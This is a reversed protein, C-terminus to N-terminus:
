LGVDIDFFDATEEGYASSEQEFEKIFDDFGQGELYTHELKYKILRIKAWPYLMGFTLLTVIVNSLTIWGLKWPKWNSKFSLKGITTSNYVINGIWGDLLGKVFPGFIILLVYVILLMSGFFIITDMKDLAGQTTANSDHLQFIDHMQFLLSYQSLMILITPIFTLVFAKLYAKYFGGTGGKFEFSKDGYSTNNIILEKFKKFTYPLIIGITVIILIAHLIFFKYYKWVSAFHYFSLGRYRTYRMRFCIAQRILFPICLIFTIIFIKAFMYFGLVDGLIVYLIYSGIVIARGILIRVPNAIYEFSTDKLITSGYLYQNNRVKAWPSYIGLTVVSLLMNVIWINFFDLWEGTFSFHHLISEDNQAELKAEM